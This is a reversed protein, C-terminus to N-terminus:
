KEFVFLGNSELQVTEKAEFLIAFSCEWHKLAMQFNRWCEMKKTEMISEINLDNSYADFKELLRDCVLLKGDRAVISASYKLLVECSAKETGSADGTLNAGGHVVVFVRNNHPYVSEVKDLKVKLTNKAGKMEYMYPLPINQLAVDQYDLGIFLEEKDPKGGDSGMNNKTCLVIAVAALLVAVAVVVVRWKRRASLAGILKENSNGVGDKDSSRIM